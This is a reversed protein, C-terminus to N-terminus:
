KYIIGLRIKDILFNIKDIIGIVDCVKMFKEKM